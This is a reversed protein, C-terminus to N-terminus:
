CTSTGRCPTAGDGRSRPAAAASRSSTWTTAGLPPCSSRAIRRILTGVLDGDPASTSGTVVRLPPCELGHRHLWTERFYAEVTFQDDALVIGRGGGPSDVTDGLRLMTEADALAASTGIAVLSRCTSYSMPTPNGHPDRRLATTSLWGGLRGPPKRRLMQAVSWEDDHQAAERWDVDREIQAKVAEPLFGIHGLHAIFMRDRVSRDAGTRSGIRKLETLVRGVIVDFPTAGDPVDISQADNLRAADFVHSVREATLGIRVVILRPWETGSRRRRETLSEVEHRVWGSSLAGSSLVIVAADCEDMWAHVLSRWEDSAHLNEIDLAPSFRDDEGIAAHLARVLDNDARNHSIFVRLKM